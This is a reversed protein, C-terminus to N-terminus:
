CLKLKKICDYSDVNLAIFFQYVEDDFAFADHWKLSDHLYLRGAEINKEPIYNEFKHTLKNEVFGEGSVKYRIKMKEPDTTGWLRLWKTPHWTDFHPLLHGMSHWKFVCSRAMYKKIPELAKLSRFEMLETHSKFSTEFLIDSKEFHSMNFVYDIFNEANDGYGHLLFVLKKPNGTPEFCPGNLPKKNNM